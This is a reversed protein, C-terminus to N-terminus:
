VELWKGWQSCQGEMGSLASAVASVRGQLLARSQGGGAMGRALMQWQLPWPSWGALLQHPCTCPFSAHVGPLFAAAGFSVAM